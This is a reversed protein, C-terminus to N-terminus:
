EFRTFTEVRAADLGLVIELVLKRAALFDKRNFLSVHSHIYRAPVGVVVTPVGERSRHIAGADTGGTRRVALQIEIGQDAAVSEVFRVLRRNPLATPDFLRVQPGAGLRAQRETEGPLDDAPTCELVLGVDPRAVESATGAGRLGIEEQVAGVGIVTNPHDRGTLAQMTECMVTVGLRNDLAKGSFIEPPGMERFEASPVIPDGPRIGLAEVESRESAGVDVYMKELAVVQKRQEETLFHPPTSGIVGPVKGGEAIVDVRQGLLVHGWWGGLPVFALQGQSSVSQVMFAVEDMHSDLVVRPAPSSGPKECVVSGLRDHRITGVGELAERVIRRVEDEAGPPGAATSLRGLLEM